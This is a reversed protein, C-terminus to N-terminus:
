IYLMRMYEGLVLGSFDLEASLYVIRGGNEAAFKLPGTKKPSEDTLVIAKFSHVALSADAENSGLGTKKKSKEFLYLNIEPSAYFVREESSQFTGQGFGAYVQVKSPLGDIDFTQFGFVSTTMVACKEINSYIYEKLSLKKSDNPIANLEIEVERTLYIKYKEPPLETLLDINRDHLYNWACSDIYIPITM